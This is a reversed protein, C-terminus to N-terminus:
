SFSMVLGEFLGQRIKPNLRKMQDDTLYSAHFDEMANRVHLAMLMAIKIFREPKAAEDIDYKKFFAEAQNCSPEEWYDPLSRNLWNFHQVNDPQPTESFLDEFAILIEEIADYIIRFLEEQHELCIEDCFEQIHSIICSYLIDAPM